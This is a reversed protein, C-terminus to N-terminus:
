GNFSRPRAKLTNNLDAHARIHQQDPSITIRHSSQETTDQHKSGQRTETQQNNISEPSANEGGIEKRIRGWEEEKIHSIEQTAM